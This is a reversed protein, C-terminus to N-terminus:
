PDEKPYHLRLAAADQDSLRIATNADEAFVSDSYAPGAIDTIPGLAQTVEELMVSQLSRGAVHMSLGITAATITGDRSRLVVHGLGLRTGDLLPDGTGEVIRGPPTALVHVAIQPRAGRALIVDAGVANLRAVARDLAISFARRRPAALMDPWSVIGVRLPRRREAPWRLMPKRCLGGPDAACAVARHFDADSVRDPLIVFEQAPASGAWALSLATAAGALIARPTM